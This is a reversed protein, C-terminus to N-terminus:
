PGKRRARRAGTLRGRVAGDHRPGRAGPQPLPLRLSRPLRHIQRDGAGDGGRERGGYGELGDGAAGAAARQPRAGPVHHRPHADPADDHEPQHLAVSRRYGPTAARRHTARRVVGRQHGLARGRRGDHGGGDAHQADLRADPGGARSRAAGTAPADGPHPQQGSRVVDFRLLQALSGQGLRNELVVSSGVPVQAFDVVVEVREAPALSLTPASVPAPLLSGDTGIVTFPQGNGLALQYHRANSGNLLRLRYKRAAVPFFPYPAGNVLLTDGQFGSMLLPMATNGPYVLSGDAAFARDQIVLPVDYAGGPLSLAAEDPDALLYFGALGMYVHQATTDMAHDHYWLTAGLQNNPYVYEKSQGPAVPDTPHGDMEPAVHGGHLHTATPVALGNTQRVVVRRGRTARITPGPVQGDFGWVTARYGPLIEVQAPRMTLEYYDTTADTRAPRAEAPLPLPRQFLPAQLASTVNPTTGDGMMGGMGGMGGTAAQRAPLIQQAALALGGVLALGGGALALRLFDRRTQIQTQMAPLEM